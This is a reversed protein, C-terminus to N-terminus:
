PWPRQFAMKQLLVQKFKAVEKEDMLAKKENSNQPAKLEVKFTRRSLIDQFEVSPHLSKLFPDYELNIINGHCEKVKSEILTMASGLENSKVLAYVNWSLLLHTNSSNYDDLFSQLVTRDIDRNLMFDSISKLAQLSDPISKPLKSSDNLQIACAVKLELLISYQPAINLGKEIIKIAEEFRGKLFFINAKTYYHNVALPNISLSFSIYEKAMKFDGRVTYVEALFENIGSDNPSLKYAKQLASLAPDFEWKGWFLYKAVSFHLQTSEIRLEKGQQFFHETRKFAVERDLPGWSGLFCYSLGAGYYPLDFGPDKSFSKVFYDAATEFGAIDWQNYHFLGKLYLQYAEVNNTSLDVLHDMIELHGFHERIKDAILLSIEDQLKFVDKLERDFNESWIHFGDEAQILQATIRLMDGAKRVSGELILAVGLQEAISRVDAHTGKFVFSSTRATVKLGDIKSLSNIIEETMGDVFYDNDPDVSLNEFPLVAISKSNTM